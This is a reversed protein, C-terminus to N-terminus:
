AAASSIHPLEIPKDSWYFLVAGIIACLLGVFVLMGPAFWTSIILPFVVTGPHAPDYYVVDTTPLGDEDRLPYLPKLQSGVPARVDVARGDATHFRFENWFIYSRDRPELAAQLHASDKLVQDPFGERAKIVVTAEATTKQGFAILKLPGAIQTMGAAFLILGCLMMLLKRKRCGPIYVGPSPSSTVADSPTM